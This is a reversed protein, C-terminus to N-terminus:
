CLHKGTFKIFNRPAGKQMPCSQNSAAEAPIQPLSLSDPLDPFLCLAKTVAETYNKIAIVTAKNRTKPFIIPCWAKDGGLKSRKRINGLKRLSKINRCEAVHSDVRVQKNQYIDLLM